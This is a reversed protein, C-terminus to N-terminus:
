LNLKASKTKLEVIWIIAWIMLTISAVLIFTGGTHVVLAVIWLLSLLFHTKRIFRNPKRKLKYGYIALTLILIFAALGSFINPDDLKTFLYYTGHIAIFILAIWGTYYHAVNFIKALKKILISPSKLKKKLFFWSFSVAGSIVALTGLTLFIGSGKGGDPGPRTGGQPGGVGGQPPKPHNGHMSFYYYYAILLLSLIAVLIAPM